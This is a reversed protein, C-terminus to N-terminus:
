CNKPIGTHTTQRQSYVSFIRFTHSQTFDHNHTEVDEDDNNNQKRQQEKQKNNKNNM